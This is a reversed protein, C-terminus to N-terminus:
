IALFAVGFALYLSVLVFYSVPHENYSIPGGGWGSQGTVLSLFAGYLFLIAMSTGGGRIKIGAIGLGVIPVLGLTLLLRTRESFYPPAFTKRM